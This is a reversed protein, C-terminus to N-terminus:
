VPYKQLLAELSSFREGDPEYCDRSASRQHVVYTDPIGSASAKLIPKNDGLDRYAEPHSSRGLPLRSSLADTWDDGTRPLKAYV